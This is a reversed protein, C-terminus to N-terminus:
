IRKSVRVGIRQDAWYTGTLMSWDPGTLEVGKGNSRRTGGGVIEFDYRDVINKVVIRLLVWAFKEGLCRHHGVGFQVHHPSKTLSPDTPNLYRNPDFSYPNVYYKEDYNGVINTISILSGSKIHHGSVDVDQLVKRMFMTATYMRGVEKIMADLYEVSGNESRVAHLHTPNAYTHALTWALHGATNTHAGLLAGLIHYPYLEKWKTGKENLVMQLYDTRGKFEEKINGDDDLRRFVEERITSAVWDRTELVRRYPPYWKTKFISSNPNTLHREMEQYKHVFVDGWKAAFQPTSLTLRTFLNNMPTAFPSVEEGLMVKMGLTIVTRSAQYFIDISGDKESLSIWHEAFTDVSNTITPSYEDLKENRMFGRSITGMGVKNWAPDQAEPPGQLLDFGADALAEEFSVVRESTKYLRDREKPDLIFIPKIALLNVRFVEGLKRRQEELFKRPNSGFGVAAGVVPISGKAEPIGDTTSFLYKWSLLALAVTGLTVPVARPSAALEKLTGVNFDSATFTANSFNPFYSIIEELSKM